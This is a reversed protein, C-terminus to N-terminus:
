YFDIRSKPATLELATQRTATLLQVEINEIGAFYRFLMVDLYALKGPKNCLFQYEAKFESHREHEDGSHHEEHDHTETERGADTSKEEQEHSQTEDSERVVYSTFETNVSTKVLRGEAGAPLAFLNEGAKLTKIAQKVATKQERTRPPHEFGVINMAPSTLELYLNNGDLAVNLHATGHEHAKHQRFEGAQPTPLVSAFGIMMTIVGLWIKLCINM